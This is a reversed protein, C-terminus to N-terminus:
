QGSEQEYTVPLSSFPSVPHVGPFCSPKKSSSTFSPGPVSIDNAGSWGNPLRQQRPSSVFVLHYCLPNGPLGAPPLDSVLGLGGSCSPRTKCLCQAGMLMAAGRCKGQVVRTKRELPSRRFGRPTGLSQEESSKQPNEPM